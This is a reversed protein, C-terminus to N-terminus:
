FLSRSEIYGRSSNGFFQFVALGALACLAAAVYPRASPRAPSAVPSAM